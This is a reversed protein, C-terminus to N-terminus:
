EWSAYQELIEDYYLIKEVKGNEIFLLAPLAEIRIKSLETDDEDSFEPIKYGEYLVYIVNKGYYAYRRLLSNAKRSEEPEGGDLYLVVSAETDLLDAIEEESVARVYDQKLISIEKSYYCYNNVTTLGVLGATFLFVAINRKRMRKVRAFDVINYLGALVIVINCTITNLFPFPMEELFRYQDRIDFEYSGCRMSFVLMLIYAITFVGSLYQKKKM